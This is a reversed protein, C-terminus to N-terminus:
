KEFYHMEKDSTVSIFNKSQERNNEITRSEERNNEITRSQERNNEITRSQERNQSNKKYFQNM